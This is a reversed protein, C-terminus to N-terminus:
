VNEQKDSKKLYYVFILATGVCLASDAVNFAPWHLSGVHFDIFDVVEGATLRDILNGTAGGMFLGYAALLLPRISESTIVIWPIIITAALSVGVLLLLRYSGAGNALIGFAAGSNRAHVLNVYGEILTTGGNLPIYATVLWKTVQDLILIVVAIVSFLLISTRRDQIM